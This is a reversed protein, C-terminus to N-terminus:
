PLAPLASSALLARPESEVLGELGLQPGPGLGAPTPPDAGALGARGMPALAWAAPGKNPSVGEDGSGTWPEPALNSDM